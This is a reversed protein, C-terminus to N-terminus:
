DNRDKEIKKIKKINDLIPTAVVTTEGRDLYFIYTSNQGLKRIDLVSDDKFTLSYNPNESKEVLGNKTGLAMGLRISLFLLAYMFLVSWFLNKRDKLLEIRKDAREINTMKRYWRKDRLSEHLMPAWKTTYLYLLTFMIVIPLTIRYDRTLLNVPSILADLISMYDIIPFGLIGYFLSDSLVGLIVLYLYGISLYEQINLEKGFM